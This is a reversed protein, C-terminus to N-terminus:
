RNTIAAKGEPTFYAAKNDNTVRILGNIIEYGTIKNDSKITGIDKGYGDIVRLETDSVGYVTLGSKSDSKYNLPNFENRIIYGNENMLAFPQVRSWNTRDLSGLAYFKAGIVNSFDDYGLSSIDALLNGSKDLLFYKGDKIALLDGNDTFYMYSYGQIYKGSYARFVVNESNTKDALLMNTGYISEIDYKNLDLKFSKLIEGKNNVIIFSNDQKQLVVQNNFFKQSLPKYVCPVVLKGDENQFGQLQGKDTTNDIVCYMGCGAPSINGKRLEGTNKNFITTNGGADYLLYEEDNLKTYSSIGDIPENCNRDILTYRTVGVGSIPMVFMYKEDLPYVYGKEKATYVNGFGDYYIPEFKYDDTGWQYAADLCYSDNDRYYVINVDPYIEADPIINESPNKYSNYLRLFTCVAQERTYTDQPEFENHTNGMMIGLHYVVNIESRSWNQIKYSDNFIHPLFIGNEGNKNDNKYNKVVPSAVNLTNYLMKAAEERTIPDNPAFNNNGKGSIIGLKGCFNVFWVDTDSFGNFNSKDAVAKFDEIKQTDAFNCDNWKAIVSNCLNCFEERTIAQKFDRAMSPQLINLDYAKKVDSVAWNSLTSYDPTDFPQAFINSSFLVICLITIITKKM